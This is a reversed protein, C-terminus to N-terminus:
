EIDMGVLPLVEEAKEGADEIGHAALGHEVFRDQMAIGLRVVAEHEVLGPLAMLIDHGDLELTGVAPGPM